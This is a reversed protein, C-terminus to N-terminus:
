RHHRRLEADARELVQDVMDRPAAFGLIMAASEIASALGAIHADILGAAFADPPITDDTVLAMAQEGTAAIMAFGLTETVRRMAAQDVDQLYAPTM